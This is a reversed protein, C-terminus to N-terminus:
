DVRRTRNQIDEVMQSSMRKWLPDKMLRVEKELLRMTKEDSAVSYYGLGQMRRYVDILHVKEIEGGEEILRQRLFSVIKAGNTAVADALALDPPHKAMMAWLYLDVQQKPPYELILTRRVDMPQRLFQETAESMGDSVCGACLLSGVIAISLRLNKQVKM